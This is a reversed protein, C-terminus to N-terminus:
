FGSTGSFLIEGPTNGHPKRSKKVYLSYHNAGKDLLYFDGNYSPHIQKFQIVPNVFGDKYMEYFEYDSPIEKNSQVIISKGEM